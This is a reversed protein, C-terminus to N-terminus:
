VPAQPQQKQRVATVIALIGGAVAAIGYAWPAKLPGVTSGLILMGGVIVTLAGLIGRLWGAYSFAQLILAIGAVVVAAGLLWLIMAAVLYANLLPQSLLALGLLVLGAGALLRWARVPRTFAISVMLGLGGIVCVAGLVLFLNTAATKPTVILLVGIVVLAGGGLLIVWWPVNRSRGQGSAGYSKM